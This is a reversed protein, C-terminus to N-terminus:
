ISRDKKKCVCFRIVNSDFSSLLSIERDDSSECAEVSFTFSRVTCQSLYNPIQLGHVQLRSFLCRMEQACRAQLVKARAIALASYWWTNILRWRPNPFCQLSLALAFSRLLSHSDPLFALSPPLPPPRKEGEGGGEEREKVRGLEGRKAFGLHHRFARLLYVM